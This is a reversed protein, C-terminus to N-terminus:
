SQSLKAFVMRGAVTQLSRHVKVEIEQGVSNGGDEVVVMTGDPLYGVGQNKTKGAHVLNIKLIEGPIVQTRITQALENVNLVQLNKLKAVKGLNFDATLVAAKLKKGLNVLKDDVTKGEPDQSLLKLNVFKDKKFEALIDLAQRGRARKLDNDSDALHHLESIVSPIVILNGSLFGAKAIGLIRGDVIASTDLIIGNQSIDKKRRPLRLKIQPATVTPLHKVVEKAFQAIGAKALFSLINPLFFGTVAFIITVAVGTGEPVEIPANPPVSEKGLFNGLAGAAIALVLRLLIIM